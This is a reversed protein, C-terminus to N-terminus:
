VNEEKAPWTNLMEVRERERGGEREIQTIVKLQHTKRESRFADSDSQNV